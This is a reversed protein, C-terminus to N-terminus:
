LIGADFVAGLGPPCSGKHGGESAMAQSSYCDKKVSEKFYFKLNVLSDSFTLKELSVQHYVYKMFSMIFFVIKSTFYSIHPDVLSCWM